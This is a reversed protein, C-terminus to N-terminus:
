LRGTDQPDALSRRAPKPGNTRLNAIRMLVDFWFPAGLSLAIVSLLWGTWAHPIEARFEKWWAGPTRSKWWLPLETTDVKDLLSNYEASLQEPTKAVSGGPLPKVNHELWEDAIAAVRDRAVPDNYLQDIIKITNVNVAITLVISILVIVIQAERKYWGSVREMTDDYWKEVLNLFRDRDGGARQALTILSERMGSPPLKALEAVINASPAFATSVFQGLLANSFREAPLYSVSLPRAKKTFIGRAMISTLMPDSFLKDVNANGDLLAQL